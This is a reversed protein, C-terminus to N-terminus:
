DNALEWKERIITERYRNVLFVDVNRKYEKMIGGYADLEYVTGDDLTESLDLIKGNLTMYFLRDSEKVKSTNNLTAHAELKRKTDPDITTM